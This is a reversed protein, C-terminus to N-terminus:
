TTPPTKKPAPKSGVGELLRVYEARGYDAPPDQMEPYVHLGAAGIRKIAQEIRRHTANRARTANAASRKKHEQSTDAQVAAALEAALRDMDEPLMGAARLEDPKEEARGLITNAAAVVTKVVKANVNAGVSWAKHSEKPLESSKVSTRVDAIISVVRELKAYQNETAAVKVTRAQLAGPVKQGLSVLDAALGDITGPTLRPEIRPRDRVAIEYAQLGRETTQAPTLNPRPTSARAM